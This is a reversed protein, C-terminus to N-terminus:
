KLWKIRERVPVYSNNTFDLDEISEQYETDYFDIHQLEAQKKISYETAHKVARDIQKLKMGSQAYGIRLCNEYHSNPPNYSDRSLMQYIMVTTKRGRWDVKVYNKTYHNPYGELRDLAKEDNASILWLAGHLIYGKAYTYDAVHQFTLKHNRLTAKRIFTSDPCRMSMEDHNTNMGYAFYLTRQLQDKPIQRPRRYFKNM